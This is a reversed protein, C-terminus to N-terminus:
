TLPTVSWQTMTTLASMRQLLIGTLIGGIVGFGIFLMPFFILQLELPIHQKSLALINFTRMGESEAGFYVGLIGVVLLASGGMLMLTLKM